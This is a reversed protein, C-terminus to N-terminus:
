ISALTKYNSIFNNYVNKSLNTNIKKIVQSQEDFIEQEGLSHYVRKVETLIKEATGREVSRVECLTKYLSLERHLISNNHFHEKLISSVAERAEIDARLVAKTMEKVLSEYLFATNRKKNHKM